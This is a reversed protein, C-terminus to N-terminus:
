AGREPTEIALIEEVIPSPDVHFTACFQRIRALAGDLKALAHTYVEVGYAREIKPVIFRLWAKIEEDGIPTPAEGDQLERKFLDLLANRIGEGEPEGGAPMFLLKTPM